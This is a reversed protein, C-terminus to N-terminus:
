FQWDLSVFPVVEVGTVKYSPNDTVSNLDNSVTMKAFLPTEVMCGARLGFSDTLDLKLDVLGTLLFTYTKMTVSSLTWSGYAFTRTLNYYKVTPGLGVELAMRKSFAAKYQAMMTLKFFIDTDEVEIEKGSETNKSKLLKSVAFQYGIGWSDSDGFYSTGLVGVNVSTNQTKQTKTYITSEISAENWGFEGAGILGFSSTAFVSSLSVAFVVLLVVVRKM